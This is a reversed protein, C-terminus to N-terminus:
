ECMDNLRNLLARDHQSFATWDDFGTCHGKRDFLLLPIAIDVAVGILAHDDGDAAFSITHIGRQQLEVTEIHFVAIDVRRFSLGFFAPDVRDRVAIRDAPADPCHALVQLGHQLCGPEFGDALFEVHLQDALFQILDIDRGTVLEEVLAPCHLM